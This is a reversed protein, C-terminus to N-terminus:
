ANIDFLPRALGPTEVQMAFLGGSLPYRDLEAAPRGVRASTVYLTRRDDGGFALMTPCIVPTPYEALLEGDPAYRQIRAGEFLATWYCGDEDVAAGDPRGKDGDTPTWQAFVRKGSIKGSAVDYDYAFVTYRLTDSHYLTKGDPSFATGNSTLLGGALRTLGEKGYCYLSAIGRSRTEDVTGAIFRGAPDVMGDNFRSISQDEPNDALKQLLKGDAAVLWIGSRLGAVFGGHKALGICGVEEPLTVTCHEGSAPDLRHIAARKIDVFYLVREALAWLPCEGLEAKIDLVLSFASM